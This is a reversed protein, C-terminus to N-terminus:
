VVDRDTERNNALDLDRFAVWGLVLWTWVLNRVMGRIQVFRDWVVVSISAAGKACVVCSFRQQSHLRARRPMSSYEIFHVNNIYNSICIRTTYFGYICSVSICDVRSPEVARSELLRGDSEWVTPHKLAWICYNYVNQYLLVLSLLHRIFILM